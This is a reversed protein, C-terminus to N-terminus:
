FARVFFRTGNYDLVVGTETIEAVKLNKAVTDGEKYIDGNINILRTDPSNSYIDGLIKLQPIESQIGQPLQNLEPIGNGTITKNVDAPRPGHTSSSELPPQVKLSKVTTPKPLQIDPPRKVPTEANVSSIRSSPEPVSKQKGTKAPLQEKHQVETVPKVSPIQVASQPPSKKDAATSQPAVYKNVAPSSSQKWPHLWVLLLAANLILAGLILYPWILRKKMEHPVPVHITMLDPVSGRQRKEELKKLADLIFSM